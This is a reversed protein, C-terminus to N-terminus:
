DLTLMYFYSGIEKSYKAVLDLQLGRNRENSKYVKAGYISAIDITRDESGGDVIIIEGEKKNNVLRFNIGCIILKMIPIIISIKPM